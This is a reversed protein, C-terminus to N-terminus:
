DEVSEYIKRFINDKCPYHRDMASTVDTIIWDGPCVTHGGEITDIWGHEHMTKSCKECVRKGDDDPRRYYRVVAGESHGMKAEQETMIHPYDQPHDGDKFWQTADIVVPRKRFKAM